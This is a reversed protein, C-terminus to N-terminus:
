HLSKPFARRMLVQAHPMTSLVVCVSVRVRRRRIRCPRPRRSPLAFPVKVFIRVLLSCPVLAAIVEICDSHVRDGAVVYGRDSDAVGASVGEVVNRDISPISTTDKWSWRVTPLRGGEVPRGRIPHFTEQDV